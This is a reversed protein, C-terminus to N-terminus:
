HTKCREKDNNRAPIYFDFPQEFTLQPQHPLPEWRNWGTARLTCPPNNLRNFIQPFTEDPANAYQTNNMKNTEPNYLKDDCKVRIGFRNIGKLDSEVDTRWEGKVWGDGSMQIRTTADVPFSTPCRAEPPAIQYRLAYSTIRMDDAQHFDDFKPRTMSQQKVHIM